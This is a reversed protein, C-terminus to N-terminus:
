NIYRQLLKPLKRLRIAMASADEKTWLPVSLRLREMATCIVLLVGIQAPGRYCKTETNTLTHLNKTGPDGSLLSLSIPTASRASSCVLSTCVTRSCNGRGDKDLLASRVTSFSKSGRFGTRARAWNVWNLYGYFVISCSICSCTSCTNYVIGIFSSGKLM